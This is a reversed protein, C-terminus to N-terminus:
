PAYNQSIKTLFMKNANIVTILQNISAIVIDKNLLSVVDIISIEVIMM